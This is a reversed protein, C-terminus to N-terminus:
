YLPYGTPTTAISWAWINSFYDDVNFLWPTQTGNSTWDQSYSNLLNKLAKMTNLEKWPESFSALQLWVSSALLWIDADSMPYLKVKGTKVIDIVKSSRITKLSEVFNWLKPYMRLNTIVGLTLWKDWKEWKLINWEIQSITRTDIFWQAWLIGEQKKGSEDVYDFLPNNTVYTLANIFWPDPQEKVKQQGRKAYDANFEARNTYGMEKLADTREKETGGFAKQGWWSSYAEFNSENKSSTNWWQGTIADAGEGYSWHRKESAVPRTFWADLLVKVIKPNNMQDRSIDIAQGTEHFSKWPEAIREWKKGWAVRKDYATKQTEYSRRSDWIKLDIWQSKLDNVATQLMTNTTTSLKVWSGYVNQIWTDVIDENLVTQNYPTTSKIGDFLRYGISGDANKTVIYDKGWITQISEEKNTWYKKAVMAKYQSKGQLPTVFNEKLAQSMSVNNAKAYAKVDNVVEWKTRTIIDGFDKYYADLTQNLAMKSTGVNTSDLDPNEANYKMTAMQSMGEPTSQYFFGLEQMKATREAAEAQQEQLGLTMTDKATNVISNYKNVNTNYDISLESIQNQIEAQEKAAIYAIKGKTAGTGEYRKEVDKQIDNLTQKLKSIKGDQEAMSTQLWKVEDSQITSKYSDFLSTNTDSVATDAVWDVLDTKTGYLEDKFAQLAKKNEIATQVEGYKTPNTVKLTELDTDTITKPYWSVIDSIPTLWLKISKQYWTYWDTMVQIQKESRISPDVSYAKKFADLTKLSNPNTAVANNLHTAIEAMRPESDDNYRIADAEAQIQEPTKIAEKAPTEVKAPTEKKPPQNNVNIVPAAAPTAAPKTGAKDKFKNYADIIMTDTYGKWILNKYTDSEKSIPLSTAVPLTSVPAPTEIPTAVPAATSIPTYWSVDIGQAVQADYATKTFQKGSKDTYAYNAM